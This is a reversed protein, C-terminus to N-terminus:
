FTRPPPPSAKNYHKHYSSVARLTRLIFNVASYLKEKLREVDLVWRESTQGDYLLVEAVAHIVDEASGVLAQYPLLSPTM